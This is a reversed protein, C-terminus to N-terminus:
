LTQNPSLYNQIYDRVNEELSSFPHPYIKNLKQISACTHYQYKEKLESPMELYRIQLPRNMAKFIWKAMENWSHAEGRGLNYIGHYNPHELFWLIVSVIDKVYIFDRKQEGDAYEPHDSCFLTMTQNKQIQHFGNFVISTMGTKHAENPGFVNFFKFGTIQGSIGNRKAWLDFAHKSFAYMNRPRLTSLKSEDDEYGGEGNGYTAASSAYYFPIKRKQAYQCLERTYVYNNQWLYRANKETTKTCAGLHIISKFDPLSKKELVRELFPDKELYDEFSKGVLNKWKESEEGLSDVILIQDEGKSNLGQLLASGILGAGGTLLIKKQELRKSIKKM